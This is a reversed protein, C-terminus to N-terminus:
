PRVIERVCLRTCGQLENRYWEMVANMDAEALKFALRKPSTYMDKWQVQGSRSKSPDCWSCLVSCTLFGPEGQFTVSAEVKFGKDNRASARGMCGAGFTSSSDGVPQVVTDGMLTDEDVMAAKFGNLLPLIIEERIKKAAKQTENVLTEHALKAELAKQKEAEIAKNEDEIIKLFDQAFCTDAM